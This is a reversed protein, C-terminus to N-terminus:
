KSAELFIREPNFIRDVGKQFLTAAAGTVDGRLLSAADLGARTIEQRFLNKQADNGVLENAIQMMTAHDQLDIGTYTRITQILQRAEGGRGSLVLRLLYEGGANRDTYSTIDNYADMFESFKKLDAANEKGVIGAATDAIEKRIQRSLPDVSSSAEGASRAFNIKSDFASRLDILNTLTPSEKVTQLDRYLENLVKIDNTAGVRTVTGPKQVIQGNRIELNLKALQNAFSTEIKTVADIPAKYTALKTRVSGIDGGTEKLKKQMEDAAKRAYNGGYEYVSPLTDNSNRAHTVDFYEKLLDQKGAIRQKIDPRIGAWKQSFTLQPATSEALKRAEATKGQAVLEDLRKNVSDLDVKVTPTVSANAQAVVDDVSQAPRSFLSKVGSLTDGIVVQGQQVAYGGGRAVTSAVEGVGQRLVKTAPGLGFMTTLGEATGLFGDVTAKQEPSLSEYKKILTQVEPTQAIKQAQEQVATGIKEERLPSTFLKGLGLFAQGVVEAGSRLGGGVTKLTGALPSTELREVEGRAEEATQFGKSASEVSGKFAEGLDSPIDRVTAMFGGDSPKEVAGVSAIPKSPDVPSGTTRYRFVADKIEQVGKGNKTGWDIIAQEEKTFAM